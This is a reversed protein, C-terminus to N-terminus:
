KGIGAARPDGAARAKRLAEGAEDRLGARAFLVAHLLHDDPWGALADGIAREDGETTTRFMAPPAPPVPIRSTADGERIEVVWVYTVGRELPRAPTWQATRLVESRAQEEDHAFITVVYSAGSRAPWTLRPRLDRVVIGAPALGSDAPGSSGRLDEAPPALDALDSPFALARAAVATDVLRLWEARPRRVPPTTPRPPEVTAVAPPAAPPAPAQERVLLTGLFALAGLMAAIGLPLVWPRRTGREIAAALDDAEARCMACDDMHSEVIELDAADLRGEVYPVLQRDFDLHEDPAVPGDFTRLAEAELEQLAEGGAACPACTGVHRLAEILERGRLEDSALRQRMEATLHEGQRM